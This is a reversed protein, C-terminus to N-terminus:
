PPESATTPTRSAPAALDWFLLFTPQFCWFDGFFRLFGAKGDCFFFTKGTTLQPTEPFAFAPSGSAMAKALSLLIEGGRQPFSLKPPQHASKSIGFKSPRMSLLPLVVCSALLVRLGMKGIRSFTPPQNRIRKQSPRNTEKRLSFPQIAQSRQNPNSTKAVSGRWCCIEITPLHGRWLLFRFSPKVPSPQNSLLPDMRTAPPESTTSPFVASSPQPQYIGITPKRLDGFRPPAFRPSISQPIIFSLLSPLVFHCLTVDFLAPFANLM